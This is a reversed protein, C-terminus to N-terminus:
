RSSPSKNYSQTLLVMKVPRYNIFSLWCFTQLMECNYDKNHERMIFSVVNTKVNLCGIIMRLCKNGVSLKTIKLLKIKFEFIFIICNEALM